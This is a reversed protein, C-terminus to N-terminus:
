PSSPGKHQFAGDQRRHDAIQSRQEATMTLFIEHDLRAHLLSLQGESSALVQSLAQAKADDFSGSEGLEHLAERAKHAAKMQDRFKPSAAHLLAFIKDGQEESLKIDKLYPPPPLEGFLSPDHAGPPGFPNPRWDPGFGHPARPGDMPPHPDSPVDAFSTGTGCVVCAAAAFARLVAISRNTVTM